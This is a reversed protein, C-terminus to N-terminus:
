NRAETDNLLCVLLQVIAFMSGKGYVCHWAFLPNCCEKNLGMECRLIQTYTQHAQPDVMLAAHETLGTTMMVATFTACICPLVTVEGYLLQM